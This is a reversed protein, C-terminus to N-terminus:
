STNSLSNKENKSFNILTGFIIAYSLMSSGGYSIFPLTMGTPPILDISSGINIFAQMCLIFCLSFTTNQIFLNPHSKLIKKILFFFIPYLLAIFLGFFIGFEEILIAFIFDNHSEPISYKLQGEGLGVGFFGGEIIASLSRAVQPSNEPSLFKDIRISVHDFTFYAFTIFLLGFLGLIFILKINRLYLIILLFFSSLYLMLTGIDPQLLLLTSIFLFILIVFFMYSFKGTKIFLYCFWSFLCLIPGKLIESPQISFFKLNIWRTAGKIEYGLIPVLFLLLLFSFASINLLKRLNNVPLLSFFFLISLSFLLFVTHKFLLTISYETGILSYIALLGIFSLLLPFIFLKKELYYWNSGILSEDDRFLLSKM